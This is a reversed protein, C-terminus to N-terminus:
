LKTVSNCGQGLGIVLCTPNTKEQRSQIGTLAVQAGEALKELDKDYDKWEIIKQLVPEARKDGM